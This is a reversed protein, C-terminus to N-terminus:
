KKIVIFIRLLIMIAFLIVICIGLAKFYYSCGSATIGKTNRYLRKVFDLAQSKAKLIWKELVADEFQYTDHETNEREKYSTQSYTKEKFEKKGSGYIRHYHIDYLKKAEIDYLILYAEQIEQMKVTSDPSNNVDPHYKKALERYRKKIEAKTAIHTIGFIEYYNPLM